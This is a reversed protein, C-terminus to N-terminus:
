ASYALQTKTIDFMPKEEGFADEILENLSKIKTDKELGPWYKRKIKKM